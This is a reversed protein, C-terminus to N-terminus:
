SRRTVPKKQKKKPVPAARVVRFPKSTLETVGLQNAARFRLVYTGGYAFLRGGRTTGNWRVLFRGAKTVRRTAITAVRVGSRTEVTVTLRAARTVNVGAQLFQKGRVRVTIKRRALVVHGLTNNVTFRERVASARGVDDTAAVDLQWRGEAPAVPEAAPDAPVPPFAVPYTGPERAITETFAVGGGPATLTVTVNSPRVVKYSLEQTEDAGDGNPSVVPRPAPTYVGYYMLQLSTAVAREGGPDSPRNLVTGDFALTTSGGADLASATVAGLRVMTQALEFNTMGVSYGPRRGDSAVLLVRGNRLQGVATRPNRPLLQNPEFAELSRFIPAGDRVIAPGGGIAQSVETWEPRLILRLLVSTGIPAEEALKQGATGRAVLVAGGAPIPTGGGTTLHVVPGTLDTNPAAPPFPAIVAEVAGGQPPTTAGYSPTFLSIGNPGPLQNMDNLARRQGLGKWTGFFEVRRVDLAGQPTIGVSSRDGNPPSDVVGDRVLVGSPRGSSFNYFDGNVGVMTAQASLRKQMATVRELGQIRENSLVPRLEYLGTPRPGTVVHLAVPGHPTFQVGRTYSVGPMLTTKTAAAAPAAVALSVVGCILLKRLV